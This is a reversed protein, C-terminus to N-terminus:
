LPTLIQNKQSIVSLQHSIPGEFHRSGIVSLRLTKDWFLPIRTPIHNFYRHIYLKGGTTGEEKTHVLQFHQDSGFTTHFQLYLVKPEITFYTILKEGRGSIGTNILLFM